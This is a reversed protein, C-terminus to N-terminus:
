GGLERVCESVCNNDPNAGCTKICEHLIDLASATNVLPHHNFVWGMQRIGHVFASREITMYELSYSVFQKIEVRAELIDLAEQESMKESLDDLSFRRRLVDLDVSRAEVYALLCVYVEWTERRVSVWGIERVKKEADTLKYNLAGSISAAHITEWLGLVARIDM